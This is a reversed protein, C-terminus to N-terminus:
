PPPSGSDPPPESTEAASLPDTNKVPVFRELVWRLSVWFGIALFFGAPLAPLAWWIGFRHWVVSSLWIGFGLNALFFLLEILTM